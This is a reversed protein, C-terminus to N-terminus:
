DHHVAPGEAADRIQPFACSHFYVATISVARWGHRTVGFGRGRPLHRPRTSQFGRNQGGLASYCRPCCKQTPSYRSTTVDPEESPRNRRLTIYEPTPAKTRRDDDDQGRDEERKDYRSRTRAEVATEEPENQM